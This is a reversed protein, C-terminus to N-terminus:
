RSGGNCNKCKTKIKNRVKLGKFQWFFRSNELYRNDAAIQSSLIEPIRTKKVKLPFRLSRAATRLVLIRGADM